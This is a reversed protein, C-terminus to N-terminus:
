DSFFKRTVTDGTALVPQSKSHYNNCTIRILDIRFCLKEIKALSIELERDFQPFISDCVM